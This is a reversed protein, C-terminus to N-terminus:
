AESAAPLRAIAKAASAHSMAWQALAAVIERLDARARVAPTQQHPLRPQSTWHFSLNGRTLLQMADPTSLTPGTAALTRSWLLDAFLILPKFDPDCTLFLCETYARTVLIYVQWASAHRDCEHGVMRM